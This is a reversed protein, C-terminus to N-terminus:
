YYIKNTKLYWPYKVSPIYWILEHGALGLSAATLPQCHGMKLLQAELGKLVRKCKDVGTPLCMGYKEVTLSENLNQSAADLSIIM